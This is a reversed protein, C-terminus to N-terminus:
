SSQKLPWGLYMLVLICLCVTKTNKLFIGKENKNKQLFFFKLFFLCVFLCVFCWFSSQSLGCCWAHMLDLFHLFWKSDKEKWILFRSPSGKKQMFRQKSPYCPSNFGNFNSLLMVAKFLEGFPALSLQLQNQSEFSSM